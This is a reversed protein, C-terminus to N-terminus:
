ERGAEVVRKIPHCTAAAKDLNKRVIHPSPDLFYFWIGLNLLFILTIILVPNTFISSGTEWHPKATHVAWWM